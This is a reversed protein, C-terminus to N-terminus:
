GAKILRTIKGRETAQKAKRRKNMEEQIVKTILSPDLTTQIGLKKGLSLIQSELQPIFFRHLLLFLTLSRKSPETTVSSVKIITEFMKGKASVLEKKLTSLLQFTGEEKKKQKELDLLEKELESVPKRYFSSFLGNDPQLIQNSVADIRRQISSKQEISIVEMCRSLIQLSTLPEPTTKGFVEKITKILFALDKQNAPIDPNRTLAATELIQATEISTTNEMAITKFRRAFASHEKYIDRYYEEETSIGIVYPFNEEGPDLYRKLQDGILSHEKQCAMHIEDLILIVQNRHKGLQKSIRSLAKNGSYSESSNALEATNIYFVKKGVLEPYDGKKIAEAFTKLTATKGVGSQGILLPYRKGPQKGNLLKAIEDVVEKRSAIHTGFPKELLTDWNEAYALAKPVPRFLPYIMSGVFISLLFIALIKAGEELGILPVLTTSLISLFSFLMMIHHSKFREEFDNEPVSFFDRVGFATFISEIFTIVTDQIWTISGSSTFLSQPLSEAYEKALWYLQKISEKAQPNKPNNLQVCKELSSLDLLSALTELHSLDSKELVTRILFNLNDPALSKIERQLSTGGWLSWYSHIYDSVRNPLSPDM